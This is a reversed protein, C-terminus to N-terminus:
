DSAELTIKKYLRNKIKLFIFDCFLRNFVDCCLRTGCIIKIKNPMTLLKDFIFAQYSQM